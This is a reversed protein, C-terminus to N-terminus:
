DVSRLAHAVRDIRARIKDPNTTDVTYLNAFGEDRLVPALVARFGNRDRVPGDRLRQAVGVLVADTVSANLAHRPRFAARGLTENVLEMTPKLVGNLMSEDHRKLHRNEHMFGNLFLKM